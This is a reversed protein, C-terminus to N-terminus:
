NDTVYYIESERRNLMNKTWIINDYWISVNLLKYM